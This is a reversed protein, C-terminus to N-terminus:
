SNEEKERFLRLLYVTIVGLLLMFVAISNALASKNELFRKYMSISLLETANGPGGNTLQYVIEFQKFTGTVVLLVCMILTAKLMPVTIHWEKQFANAGDIQASEYIEKPITGIQALFIVMYFGINFLWTFIIAGLATRSDGLWNMQLSELGLLDLTATLPGFSPNLLFMWMMALAFPSIVQPFFYVTRLVKWGRPKYSLLIAVLMCIPLHLLVNATIWIITNLMAQWFYSEQFLTEYNAFGIFEANRFDGASWDTMSTYLLFLFPILFFFLVLLIAPSLFLLNKSTNTHMFSVRGIQIPTRTALHTLSCLGGTDM